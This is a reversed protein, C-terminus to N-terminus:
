QTLCNIQIVMASDLPPMFSTNRHLKDIFASPRSIISEM